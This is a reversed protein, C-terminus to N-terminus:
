HEVDKPAFQVLFKYCTGGSILSKELVETLYNESKNTNEAKLVGQCPRASYKVVEKKEGADNLAYPVTSQYETRLPNVMTGGWEMIEQFNRAADPRKFLFKEASVAFKIYDWTTDLFFSRGTLLVFDQTEFEKDLAKKGFEATTIGAIKIAMGRADPVNDITKDGNSYRIVAPYSAPKSFIGQALKKRLLKPITNSISVDFQAKVCANAKVHVDRRMIAPDVQRGEEYNQVEKAYAKKVKSKLAQKLLFESSYSPISVTLLLLSLNIKLFM